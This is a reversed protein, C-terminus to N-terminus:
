LLDTANKEMNEGKCFTYGILRTSFSLVSVHDVIPSGCGVSAQVLEDCCICCILPQLPRISLSLLSM